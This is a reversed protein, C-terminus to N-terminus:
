TACRGARSTSWSSSTRAPRRAGTTSRSSTRTTSTPPPRRRAGSGSSSRRSARTSPSCRRLAVPRDLLQDRALYVEAMGGQAIERQIEYRNSFSGASWPCRHSVRDTARRDSPHPPESERPPRMPTVNRAVDRAGARRDARRGPRRDDRTLATPAATSSSCRSRTSRHTPRRSRSSGRTRTRARHPRARYRDQGRGPRGPDARRHRHRRQVVDLMFQTMTAPPRPTWRGSSSAAARGVQPRRQRRHGRRPRAVHPRLIVGGTAVAEAVLAMELPTVAVTARASRPRRSCRSTTSSRARSRTRHQARRRTSTPTPPPRHERRLAAIGPRSAHRRPRPRGPRVDHQVVRHLEGRAHRRLARRRLEHLTAPRDAAAPHETSSRSSSTSTSTTRSSRSRRRDRDQVDLGAPLARAVRPRAAPQRARRAPRRVRGAGDEHRPERAPEPRVDPELVRSSGAPRCTSCSSRAAGAPSRTPRPRSRRRDVAHARRHRTSDKGSFFDASTTSRCVDFDRGRARDYYEAEVGTSGFQISQYGVVHAFLQATRAPVRASAQVRREDAGVAALITGDATVIAGATAALLRPPVRAVNHPDNTSSTQQARGPPVHAARRARPVARDDGIGVRRIGINMRRASRARANRTRTTPSACSSRSCRRLERRAVLRRVVRVAAHHRHAPHRAIVGGIILFTQFGLITAIGAAFLKRSRGRRTSRSGTRAASSCCSARHRVGLTGVLGLEEGIAAFVFDTPANPILDPNGLGLGTGAIGGSASRTGAVPHDPLRTGHATADVPQALTSACRCTGSRTTRSARRRDVFLILAGVLYAGRGRRWTSCRRSCASSCCRRASTRRTSRARPARRGVRAAATRPARLSPCSAAGSASAARRRAARAQRRPVRRLVVVLLVKAIESPEFNLPGIRSGSGRATSRAGSAPRSRSCCSRRRRAAAFTYRYREFVRVDRVVLLTVVFVGIASRSGCRSSARAHDRDLRSSRSSASATSCRPSRSCRRTPARRSAGSRSTRSSTSASCGRSSRASTPRAARARRRARRPHLRRGDIVVVLLGLSSSPAAARAPSRHTAAMTEPCTPHRDRHPATTTTTPTRPPRPRRRRPPRADARRPGAPAAVFARRTACRVAPRATARRADSTSTRRADDVRSTAHTARGDPELRARRGARGQLDVVQDGDLASTTRSGRTGASAASRSRRPDALLPVPRAARRPRAPQRPARRSAARGADPVDPAAYRCGTDRRRNRRRAASRSRGRRRADVELVDVVVVRSTTRAAARRQRRRRALEAARQPDPESRLSASSTASACWPRHARRLLARRPRRAHRRAHLPRRRRRADVGLARTVIARQPHSEAQEPTLRGERVLEEVLSHDDTIRRSCATTCCTRARTASTASRAAPQGGAVVVATLTTGMGTSSRTAPRGSSCPRRERAHDRRQVARGHRRGRAAGRDRDPERGRRRPPRGHRRRGRVARAPRRRPLADENNDRVRGPTPSARRTALKM